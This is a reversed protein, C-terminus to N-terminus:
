VTRSFQRPGNTGQLYQDFGMCVNRIFIKGLETVQIINGESRILGDEASQIIHAQEKIFYE